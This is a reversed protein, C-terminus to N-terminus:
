TPNDIHSRIKQPLNSSNAVGKLTLDILPVAPRAAKPSGGPPIASSPLLTPAGQEAVVRAEFLPGSVPPQEDLEVLLLFPAEAEAAEQAAHLRWERYDSPPNKASTLAACG